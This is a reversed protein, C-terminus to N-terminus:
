IELKEQSGCLTLTEQILAGQGWAPGSFGPLPVPVPVPSQSPRLGSIQLPEQSPDQQPLSVSIWPHKLAEAATIRKSPNITLM